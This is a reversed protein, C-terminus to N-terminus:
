IQIQEQCSQLNPKNAKAIDKNWDNEGITFKSQLVV